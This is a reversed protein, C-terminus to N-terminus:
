KGGETYKRIILDSRSMLHDKGLIKEKHHTISPDVEKKLPASIAKFIKSINYAIVGLLFLLVIWKVALYASKNSSDVVQLIDNFFYISIMMFFLSFLTAFINKRVRKYLNYILIYKALKLM